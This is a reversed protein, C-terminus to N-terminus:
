KRVEGETLLERGEGYIALPRSAIDFPDASWAIFSAWKGKALTGLRDAVGLFEAPKRTVLELADQKSMGFRLFARTQQLLTWSQTVPHDTMLCFDVGSDMLVKTNRWNLRTLEVKSANTEVPGYVVTIGRKRLEEFIEPRDVSLAHEVSVKLNFEDVLRMLTAIDDIKHAHVRLLTEGDLVSKLALEEATCAKKLEKESKIAAAKDRLACLKDRLLAAAGRRTTPREGKASAGLQTVNTGMASKIGARGILAATSHPAYNRIVASLGSIINISGPVVCSYLTGFEVATRLAEDDMHISDLVDPLGWISEFRDNSESDNRPEGHRNIGIHSHPDIFAPTLVACEGIMEGRPKASFGIIGQGSFVLHQQERVESGTYIKEAYICKTIPKM